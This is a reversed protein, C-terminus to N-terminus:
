RKYNSTIENCLKQNSEIITKIEIEKNNITKRANTLETAIIKCNTCEIHNALVKSIQDKYIKIASIENNYELVKEKLEICKTNYEREIEEVLKKLMEKKKKEKHLKQRLSDVTCDKIGNMSEPKNSYNQIEINNFKSFPFGEPNVKRKIMDTYIVKNIHKELEGLLKYHNAESRRPNIM